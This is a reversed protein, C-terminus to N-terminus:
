ALRDTFPNGFKGTPDLERRLALFDPLRPYAATTAARDALTVKGWHPRGGLPLLAREVAALAPTVTAPDPKWTFHLALSDRGYAPSLWLDDAAVTRVESIHLAPALRTGLARLATIAATAATRPLLYESQLEAGSSPTFEPRFHPLRRHWRGPTGLQRTCHDAPMGPVPHEPATAPRAGPVTAAPRGDDLQKVWVRGTDSGWDTFLSVSWGAAHVEDLRAAYEALPLGLHVYQRLRYAPLVDLTLATAIGLAGLHVVAGPHSLVRTEGDPGLLELSRVAAALSRHADGSGHTGTATAGAVSIHPLSALNALALGAADLAAALEAYRTAASVTVTRRDPAIEIRTPLDDLLVLDGDTDAVPSFSHGSGLARIRESRRVLERLEDLARPRHVARAGFVLNGAWNTLPGPTPRGTGTSTM